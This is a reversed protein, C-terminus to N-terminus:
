QVAIHKVSAAIGRAPALAPSQDFFGCSQNGPYFEVARCRPDSVCARECATLSMNSLRRYNRGRIETDFRREM